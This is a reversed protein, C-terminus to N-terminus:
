DNMLNEKISRFINDYTEKTGDAPLNLEIRVTLAFDRRESNAGEFNVSNKLPSTKKSKAKADKTSTKSKPNGASKQKPQPVDGHGALAALVQFTSAQRGGITPANYVQRVTM